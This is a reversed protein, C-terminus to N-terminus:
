EIYISSIVNQWGMVPEGAYPYTPGPYWWGGGNAHEALHAYCAGVIYSSAQDDFGYDALNQWYGRDWFSLRRGSYWNYEWLRLSSSCASSYYSYSAIALDGGSDPQPETAAGSPRGLQAERADLAAETRFCELIGRQRWVLCARAEGWDGALDIKRGEFTAIAPQREVGPADVGQGAGAPTPVALTLLLAFLGLTGVLHIRRVREGGDTAGRRFDARKLRDIDPGLVM